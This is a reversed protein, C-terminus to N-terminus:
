RGSRLWSRRVSGCPVTSCTMSAGDGSFVAARLDLTTRQAVEEKVGKRGVRHVPVSLEVGRLKDTIAHLKLKGSAFARQGIQRDAGIACVRPETGEDGGDTGLVDADGEDLADYGRCLVGHGPEPTEEFSRGQDGESAFPGEAHSGLGVSADEEVCPQLGGAWM